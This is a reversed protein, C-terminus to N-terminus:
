FALNFPAELKRTPLTLAGSSPSCHSQPIDRVQPSMCVFGPSSAPPYIQTNTRRANMQAGATPSLPGFAFHLFSRLFVGHM